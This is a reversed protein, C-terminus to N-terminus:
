QNLDIDPPPMRGAEVDNYQVGIHNIIVSNKTKEIARAFKALQRDNVGTFVNEFPFHSVAEAESVDVGQERLTQLENELHSLILAEVRAEDRSWFNLYSNRGQVKERALYAAFIARLRHIAAFEFGLEADRRNRDAESSADLFRASITHSAVSGEFDALTAGAAANAAKSQAVVNEPGFADFIRQAREVSVIKFFRDIEAKTDLGAVYDRILGVRQGRGLTGVDISKSRAYKDIEATFKDEAGSALVLLTKAAETAVAGSYKNAGIAQAAIALQDDLSVGARTFGQGTVNLQTAFKGVKGAESAASTRELKALALKLQEMSAFQGTTGLYQVLAEIESGELAKAGAFPAIAQAFALNQANKIGGTGGTAIDIQKGLSEAAGYSLGGAAALGSVIKISEAESVNTQAAFRAAGESLTVTQEALRKRIEEIERFHEVLEAALKKAVELGAFSTVMGTAASKVNNLIDGLVGFEGSAKKGMKGVEETEKGLEATNVGLEKLARVAEDVGVVKVLQVFEKM